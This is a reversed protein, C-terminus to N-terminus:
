DAHRLGKRAARVTAKDFEEWGYASRRYPRLEGAELRQQDNETVATRVGPYGILDWGIFNENGGYYPDGFTGQLVHGRIMSFFAASSGVFGAGAGTAAGTEVDILASIRDNRPLEMFDGGRSSRCYRQFAALGARYADLSDSLAGGLARDIYRVANADLAGPGTDDSPILHDAIAELLQGEEATLQEYAEAAEAVNESQQTTKAYSTVAGLTSAGVAASVGAGRLLERRTMGVTRDKRKTGSGAM